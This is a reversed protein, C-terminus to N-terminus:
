GVLHDLYKATSVSSLWDSYIVYNFIIVQDVQTNIEDYHAIEGKLTSFCGTAKSSQPTSTHFFCSNSSYTFQGGHYLQSITIFPTLGWDILWDILWKSANNEVRWYFCKYYYEMAKGLHKLAKEFVVLRWYLLKFWTDLIFTNILTYLGRARLVVCICYM